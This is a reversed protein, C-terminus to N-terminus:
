ARAEEDPAAMALRIWLALGVAWITGVLEPLYRPGPLELGLLRLLHGVTACLVLAVVPLNRWRGRATGVLAEVLLSVAVPILVAVALGNALVLVSDFARTKAVTEILAGVQSGLLYLCILWWLDRRGEDPGLGEVTSRPHILIGGWRQVAAIAANM